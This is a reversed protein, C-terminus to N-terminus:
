VLGEFLTIVFSWQLEMTNLLNRFLFSNQDVQRNCCFLLLQKTKDFRVLFSMQKGSGKFFFFLFHYCWIAHPIIDFCYFHQYSTSTTFSHCHFCFCWSYAPDSNFGLKLFLVCDHSASTYISFFSFRFFASLIYFDYLIFLVTYICSCRRSYRSENKFSSATKNCKDRVWKSRSSYWGVKVEESWKKRKYDGVVGDEIESILRVKEWWKTRLTCSWYYQPQPLPAAQFRRKAPNGLM